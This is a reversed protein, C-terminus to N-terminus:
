SQVLSTEVKLQNNTYNTDSLTSNENISRSNIDESINRTGPEQVVILDRALRQRSIEDM